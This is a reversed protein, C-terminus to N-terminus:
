KLGYEKLKYRLNRETLGLIEAGPESNSETLGLIGRVTHTLQEFSATFAEAVLPRLTADRQAEAIGDLNLVSRRLREPDNLSAM